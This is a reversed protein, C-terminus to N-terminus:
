SEWSVVLPPLSATTPFPLAATYRDSVIPSAIT